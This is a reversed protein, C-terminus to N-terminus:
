FNIAETPSCQCMGSNIFAQNSSSWYCPNDCLWTADDKTITDKGQLRGSNHVPGPDNPSIGPNQMMARYIRASWERDTEDPLREKYEEWKRLNTPPPTTPQDPPTDTDSNGSTLVVAIIIIIVLVLIVGAVIAIKAAPTM